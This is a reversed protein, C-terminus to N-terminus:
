CSIENKLDEVLRILNDDGLDGGWSVYPSKPSFSSKMVCPNWDDNYRRFYVNGDICFVLRRSGEYCSWNGFAWETKVTPYDSTQRGLNELVDDSPNPLDSIAELANMAPARATQEDNSPIIVIKRPDTSIVVM